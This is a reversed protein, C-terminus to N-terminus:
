QCLGAKCLLSDPSGQVDAGPRAAGPRPRGCHRPAAAGGGTGAPPLCAPLTNVGFIMQWAGDERHLEAREYMEDTLDPADTVMGDVFAVVAEGDQMLWFHGAYHRLRAAFEARTAAESAPFCAAEVAAIRDLDAYSATQINM